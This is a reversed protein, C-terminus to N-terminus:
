GSNIWTPLHPLLKIGLTTIDPCNLTTSSSIELHDVVAAVYNKMSVM